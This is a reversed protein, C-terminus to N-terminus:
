QRSGPVIQNNVADHGAAISGNNATVNNGGSVVWTGVVGIITALLTAVAITISWKAITM